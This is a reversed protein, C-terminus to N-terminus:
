FNISISFYSNNDSLYYDSKEYAYYFNTGILNLGLGLTYKTKVADLVKLNKHGVFLSLYPVFEPQYSIAHSFLSLGEDQRLQLYIYIENSAKLRTSFISVAELNEEPGHSFAVTSPLANRILYSLELWKYQYILGVDMNSGSAKYDYASFSYHAISAGFHFNDNASFGYSLKYLRDKFDFVDIESIRGNTKATHSLDFVTAEMYGIGIRGIPTDGCMSMTNYFLESMLTTTYLSVSSRNVRYLAAPNEFVSNSSDSFGEIGGLAVTKACTGVDSIVFYNSGYVSGIMGFLLIIVSLFKIMYKKM